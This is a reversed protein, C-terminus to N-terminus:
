EQLCRFAGGRTHMVTFYPNDEVVEMERVWSFEDPKGVGTSHRNAMAELDIVQISAPISIQIGDMNGKGCCGLAIVKKEAIFDPITVCDEDGTYGVVEVGDEMERYLFKQWNLVRKLMREQM